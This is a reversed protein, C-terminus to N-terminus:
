IETVNEGIIVSTIDQNDKFAGEAISTVQYSIGDITVTAPITVTGAATTGTYAVTTGQATVTYKDTGSTLATGAPHTTIVPPDIAPGQPTVSTPGQPTVTTPGQPTVVIEGESTMNSEGVAGEAYFDSYAVSSVITSVALLITLIKKKM